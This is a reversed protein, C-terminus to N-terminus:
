VKTNVSKVSVPTPFKLGGNHAVVYREESSDKLQRSEFAGRDARVFLLM